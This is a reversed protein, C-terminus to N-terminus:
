VHLEEELMATTFSPGGYGWYGTQKGEAMNDHIYKATNFIWPYLNPYKLWAVSLARYEVGYPKPRFCANKGYLQIRDKDKDWNPMFPRYISDAKSALQVCDWRHSQSFIDADKTFGFHIHGAATRMTEYKGKPTPTPNIAGGNAANFDPECGLEKAVEPLTSFYKPEFFVAPTMTFKLKKPVISRVQELADLTNEKFEKGTKAPKINIEVATGDAQVAVGRSLKEPKKKTGPVVDHASIPKGKYELFFEPDSGLTFM